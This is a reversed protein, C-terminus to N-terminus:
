FIFFSTISFCALLGGGGERGFFVGEGFYAEVFAKQDFVFAQYFDDWFSEFLDRFIELIRWVDGFM